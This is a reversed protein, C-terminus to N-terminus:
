FGWNKDDGRGGIGAIDEGCMELVDIERKVRKRGKRGSM